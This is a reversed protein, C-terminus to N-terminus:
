PRTRCPWGCTSCRTERDPRPSPRRMRASTLRATPTGTSVSTWSTPLRLRHGAHHVDQLDRREEAPLGVQKDRRRAGAPHHVDLLALEERRAVHAVRHPLDRHRCDASQRGLAARGEAVVVEHDVHPAERHHACQAHGDIKSTVWLRCHRARTVADGGPLGLVDVRQRRRANRGADVADEELNVVVRAAGPAIGLVRQAKVPEGPKEVRERPPRSRADSAVPPVRGRM